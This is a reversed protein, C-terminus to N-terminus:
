GRRYESCARPHRQGLGLIRLHVDQHTRAHSSRQPNITVTAFTPCELYWTPWTDQDSAQATEGEMSHLALIGASGMEEARATDEQHLGRAGDDRDPTGRDEEVTGQPWAAARLGSTIAQELPGIVRSPIATRPVQNAVN